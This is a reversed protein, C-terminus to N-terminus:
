TVQCFSYDCLSSLKCLEPTAFHVTHLTLDTNLNIPFLDTFLAPLQPQCCVNSSESAQTSTHYTFFFLLTKRLQCFIDTCTTILSGAHATWVNLSLASKITTNCHVFGKNCHHICMQPNLSTFLPTQRGCQPSGAARNHQPHCKAPM